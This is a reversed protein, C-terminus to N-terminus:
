HSSLAVARRGLLRRLSGAVFNLIAARVKPGPLNTLAEAM